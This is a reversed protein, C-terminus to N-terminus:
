PFPREALRMADLWHWPKGDSSGDWGMEARLQAYLEEDGATEPAALSGRFGSAEGLSPDVQWHTPSLTPPQLSVSPLGHVDHQM